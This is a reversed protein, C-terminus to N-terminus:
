IPAISETRNSITLSGTTAKEQRSAPMPNTSGITTGGILSANELALGTSCGFIESTIEPIVPFVYFYHSTELRKLRFGTGPPIQNHMLLLSVSHWKQYEIKKTSRSLCRNPPCHQCKSIHFHVHHRAICIVLKLIRYKLKKNAQSMTSMIFNQLQISM